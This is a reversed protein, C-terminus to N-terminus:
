GSVKKKSHKNMSDEFEAKNKAENRWQFYLFDATEDICFKEYLDEIGLVDSV